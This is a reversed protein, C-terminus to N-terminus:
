HKKYISTWYHKIEEETNTKNLQEGNPNYLTCEQKGKTSKGRLKNINDWLKKRGGKEMKIDKTIKAEHRQIAEYVLTQVLIKQEIYQKTATDKENEKSSKKIRNLHKRKKIASKIEATMWIPEEKREKNKIVRRKYSRKPTKTAAQEVKSNFSEISKDTSITSDNILNELQKIYTELSNDDLKYYVTEKWESNTNFNHQIDHLKLNVEILNHDSLYIIDQTEDIKM